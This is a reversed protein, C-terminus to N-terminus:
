KKVIKYTKIQNGISLRLIYIGEASKSLKKSLKDEVVDTMGKIDLIEQGTMNLMHAAIKQNRSIGLKIPGYTPNPYVIVSDVPMSLPGEVEELLNFRTLVPLHDSTTNPYDAINIFPLQLQSGDSGLSAVLENSIMVHDIVNDYGIYSKQGLASLAATPIQWQAKDDVFVKYSSEKIGTVVSEDVDDNFDGAVIISADPYYTDLTDKLVGVDIKRMQYVMEREAADQRNARAHIGVIHLNRTVGNISVECEMLAPLRGSAWFREFTDPYGAIPQTGTLLPKLSKLKVTEDKFIFCVRQAQDPEGGGSVAPSCGGSYGGMFSVLTSFYNLDVVEELVYVDADLEVLTNRVNYYQLSDDAPGFAPSGFWEVNWTVLDFTEAPNIPRANVPVAGIVTFDATTRPYLQVEDRYQGIVGAVGFTGAVKEHGPIDTKSWVRMALTNNGASLKENTNPLFVFNKDVLQVDAISVLSGAYNKAENLQITIPLVTRNDYVLWIDSPAPTVPKALIPEQNLVGTVVSISVSDGEEFGFDGELRIGGSTDQIYNFSGMQSASATVRGSALVREGEPLNRIAAIPVSCDSKLNITTHALLASNLVEESENTVSFTIQDKQGNNTIRLYYPQYVAGNAPTLELKNKWNISDKSFEVGEYDANLYLTKETSQATFTRTFMSSINCAGAYSFVANPLGTSYSISPGTEMAAKWTNTIKLEDFWLSPAKSNNGQRIAVTGLSEADYEGAAAQVQAAPEKDIAGELVFLEVVDDTGSTPNFTYKVVLLYTKNLDYGESTYVAANSSKSIGFSVHGADLSKVFVRAKFNTGLQEAGLHFFYDGDVSAEKVKVLFATYVPTTNQSVFTRNVDQGGGSIYIGNGQTTNNLGIGTTVQIPNSGGGSHEVWSSVATLAGSPYSFSESLLQASSSYALFIFFYFFAKKM